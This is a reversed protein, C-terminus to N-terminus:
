RAQAAPRQQAAPRGAKTEVQARGFTKANNQNKIQYEHLAQLRAYFIRLARPDIINGEKGSALRYSICNIM